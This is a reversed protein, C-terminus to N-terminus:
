IVPRSHRGVPWQTGPHPWAGRSHVFLGASIDLSPNHLSSPVFYHPLLFNVKIDTPSCNMWKELFLKTQSSTAKLWLIFTSYPKHGTEWLELCGHFAPLVFVLVQALPDLEVLLGLLLKFVQDGEFIVIHLDTRFMTRPAVGKARPKLSWM